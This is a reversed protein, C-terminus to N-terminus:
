TGRSEPRYVLPLYVLQQEPVPLMIQVTVTAQNSAAGDDDQVAYAFTDTGTYDVQATYTVLGARALTATGHLPGAVLVTTTPDITGDPDFDNAVLDIVVSKGAEAVAEDDNAVPADNVGTVTISVTAANSTAGDNDDVTYTFVDAGFFDANPTYTVIGAGDITLAGHSAGAVVTLTDPVVTGDCDSDNDLVAVAVATDEPTSTADDSAEPPANQVSLVTTAQDTCGADDTVILTVTHAGLEYGALALEHTQNAGSYVALDDVQWEYATITGDEDSSASADFVVSETRHGGYPGAASALPASCDEDEDDVDGDCDDDIGNCIELADPHVAENTDDCDDSNDAHGPPLAAGSCVDQIGGAGFDDDDGDTFGPLLQWLADDLSACDGADEVGDGDDDSDVCDADGDGDTDAFGEDTDGDCDNDLGDCVEDAAPNVDDDDDNCDGPRDVYGSPQSCSRQSLAPNGYGDGDADRYWAPRGTCTPDEDDILSDCDDDIGNCTELAGPNVQANGDDCDSGNDAYGSPLTLGSCVDQSNGTGFDDDDGDSFGPLLQWLAGDLPACDDGDETGDGDDDDDVCDAEGDGDTNPFGEDISDNCNNDVGDCIETAEPNVDADADDCDGETDTLEATTYHHAPRECTTAETGDGYGDGDADKYWTQGPYENADQDDCDTSDAVYGDPQSCSEQSEDPSGYRDGDGDLFWTLATLGVQSASTSGPAHANYDADTFGTDVYPDTTIIAFDSDGGGVVHFSLTGLEVPSGVSLGTWNHEGIRVWGVGDGGFIQAGGGNGNAWVAPNVSGSVYTLAETNYALKVRWDKYTEGDPNASLTLTVRVTDDCSATAVDAAATVVNKSWDGRVTATNIAGLLLAIILGTSLPRSPTSM